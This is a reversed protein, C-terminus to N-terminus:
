SNEKGVSVVILEPKGLSIPNSSVGISVSLQNKGVTCGVCSSNSLSNRSDVSNVVPKLSYQKENIMTCTNDVGNKRIDQCDSSYQIFNYDPRFEQVTYQTGLPHHVNWGNESGLLPSFKLFQDTKLV